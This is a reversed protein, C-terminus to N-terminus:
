SRRRRPGDLRPDAVVPPLVDGPRCAGVARALREEATWTARIAAAADVIEAPSPVYDPRHGEHRAIWAARDDESRSIM